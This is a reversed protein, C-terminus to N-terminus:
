KKAAKVKAWRAKAAASIAAKAAASMTRKKKAPKGAKAAGKTAHVKAWRAKQAAAIRARGAPSMGGKAKAAVKASPAATGLIATLQAELKAIQEKLDAAHNLQKASLDLITNM